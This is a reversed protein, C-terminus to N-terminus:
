CHPNPQMDMEMVRLQAGFQQPQDSRVVGAAVEQQGRVARLFGLNKGVFCGTVPAPKNFDGRDGVAAPVDARLESLGPPNARSDIVRVREGRASLYRAVAVGTAGLGVILSHKAAANRVAPEKQELELGSRRRRFSRLTPAKAAM